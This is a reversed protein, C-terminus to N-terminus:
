RPLASIHKRDAFWAGYRAVIQIGVEWENNNGAPCYGWDIELHSPPSTSMQVPTKLQRNRCMTM